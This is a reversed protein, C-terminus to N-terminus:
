MFHASPSHSRLILVDKIGMSLILNILEM